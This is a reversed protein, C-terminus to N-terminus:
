GDVDHARQDTPYYEYDEIKVPRIDAEDCDTLLGHDICGGTNSCERVLFHRTMAGKQRALRASCHRSEPTCRDLFARQSVKENQGQSHLFEYM